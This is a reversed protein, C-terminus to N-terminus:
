FFSDREVLINTANQCYNKYYCKSFSLTLINTLDLESFGFSENRYWPELIYWDLANCLMYFFYFYWFISKQMPKCSKLIKTVCILDSSFNNKVMRHFRHLRVQRHPQTFPSFCKPNPFLYVQSQVGAGGRLQTNKPFDIESSGTEEDIFHPYGCLGKLATVPTLSTLVLCPDEEMPTVWCNSAMSILLVM